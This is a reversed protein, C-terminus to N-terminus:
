EQQEQQEEIIKNRKAIFEQVNEFLPSIAPKEIAVIKLLLSFAENDTLIKPSDQDKINFLEHSGVEGKSHMVFHSLNLLREQCVKPDQTFYEPNTTYSVTELSNWFQQSREIFPEKNTTPRGRLSRPHLAWPVSTIGAYSSLESVGFLLKLSWVCPGVFTKTLTKKELNAKLLMAEQLKPNLAFFTGLLKCSEVQAIMLKEVVENLSVSINNRKTNENDINVTGKKRGRKGKQPLEVSLLEAFDFASPVSSKVGTKPNVTIKAITRVEPAILADFDFGQAQTNQTNMKDEREENALSLTELVYVQM